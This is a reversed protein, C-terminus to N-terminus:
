ISFLLVMNERKGTFLLREGSENGPRKNPFLQITEAGEPKGKEEERTIYILTDYYARGPNICCHVYSLTGLNWTVKKKHIQLFDSVLLFWKCDFSRFIRLCFCFNVWHHMLLYISKKCFTGSVDKVPVEKYQMKTRHDVKM